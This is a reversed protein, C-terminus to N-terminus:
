EPLLEVKGWAPLLAGNKGPAYSHFRVEIGEPMVMGGFSFISDKDSTVFGSVTKGGVSVRAPVSFFTDAEATFTATRVQGDACFAKVKRGAQRQYM